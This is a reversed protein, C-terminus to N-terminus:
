MGREWYYPQGNAEWNIGGQEVPLDTDTVKEDENYIGKRNEVSGSVMLLNMRDSHRYKREPGGASNPGPYSSQDNHAGPSDWLIPTRSPNQVQSLPRKFADGLNRNYQYGLRFVETNPNKDPYYQSFIAQFTPCRFRLEIPSNSSAAGLYPRLASLWVPSSGGAPLLDKYDQAYLYFAAGLQRLTSICNANRASQRVKGVTPILIGALIGIIAIVTLLEILTFAATSLRSQSSHPLSPSQHILQPFRKSM